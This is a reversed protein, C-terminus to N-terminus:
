AQLQTTLVALNHFVVGSYVMTLVVLAVLFIAASVRSPRLPSHVLRFAPLWGLVLVVAIVKIQVLGAAGHSDLLAAALPNGEAAGNALAGLTTLLDLLQLGLLWAVLATFDQWAEV